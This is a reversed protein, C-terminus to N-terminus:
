YLNWLGYHEGHVKAVVMREALGKSIGTAIEMPSTEWATGERINGDPLTIQIANRPHEEYIERM